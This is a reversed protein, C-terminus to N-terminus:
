SHESAGPAPCRAILARARSQARIRAGARHQWAVCLSPCFLIWSAAFASAALSRRPANRAALAHSGCWLVLVYVAASLGPAGSIEPPPSLLQRGHELSGLLGLLAAPPRCMWTLYSRRGCLMLVTEQREVMTEGGDRGEAAEAWGDDWNERGERRRRADEADADSARGTAGRGHCRTARVLRRRRGARIGCGQRGAEAGTSVCSGNQRQLAAWGRREKIAQETEHRRLSNDSARRVSM